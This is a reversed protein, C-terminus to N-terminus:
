EAEAMAELRTCVEREVATAIRSTLGEADTGITLESPEIGFARSFAPIHEFRPERDGSLVRSVLSGDIKGRRSVEAATMGREGMTSRLLDRFPIM